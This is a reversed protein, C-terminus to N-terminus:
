EVTFPQALELDLKANRDHVSAKVLYEGSPDQPEIVVGLTAESVQVIGKRAGPKIVWAAVSKASGYETGDPRLVTFDVIIRCNGRRAKCGTFVVVATIPKGRYATKTIVITPTEPRRWEEYFKEVDPTLLLM